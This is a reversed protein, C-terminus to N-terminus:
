LKSGSILKNRLNNKSDESLFYINDERVGCPKIYWPTIRISNWCGEICVKRSSCNNCNTPRQNYEEPQKIIVILKEGLNIILRNREERIKSFSSKEELAKLCLQIDRQPNLSELPHFFKLIINKDNAFDVIQDINKLIEPRIIINLKIHKNFEKNTDFIAAFWNQNLMKIDHLSLNVANLGHEILKQLRSKLYTGNTTLTIKINPFSSRIDDFESLFKNEKVLLPEAHGSIVIKEKAQSLPTTISKILSISHSFSYTKKEDFNQSIQFYDKHCNICDLNCKVNRGILSAFDLRYSRNTINNM